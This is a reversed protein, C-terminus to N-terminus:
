REDASLLAQLADMTITESISEVFGVNDPKDSALTGQLVLARLDNDEAGRCTSLVCYEACYGTAVVTDVTFVRLHDLLSTKNFANDYLKHIHLDSPLIGLDDPPEFGTAGPQLGHKADIQQICVVPLGRKRFLAVAARVHPIAARLSEEGLSSGLFANQVDIVLLAPKM